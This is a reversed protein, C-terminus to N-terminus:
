VVGLGVRGEVRLGSRAWSSTERSALSSTAMNRGKAGALTGTEGEKGQREQMAKVSQAVEM